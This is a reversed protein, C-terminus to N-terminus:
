YRIPLLLWCMLTAWGAVLGMVLVLANLRVSLRHLRQWRALVMERADANEKRARVAEDRLMNMRPLLRQRAWVVLVLMGLLLALITTGSKWPWIRIAILGGGSALALVGCVAGLMYYRPFLTRIFKGAHEVELSRFATPAAFFSFFVIAGVWLGWALLFVFSLAISM